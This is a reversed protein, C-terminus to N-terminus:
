QMQERMALLNELDQQSLEGNINVFVAERENVVSIVVGQFAEEAIKALIRIHEKSEDDRVIIIREWGDTQLRALANGVDTSIQGPDGKVDYMQIQLAKINRFLQAEENESIGAAWILPKLGLSGLKFSFSPSLGQIDAVSYEAFSAPKNAGATAIAFAGVAVLLLTAFIIGLTKM